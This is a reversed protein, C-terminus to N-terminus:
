PMKIAVLRDLQRDFAEFVTGFSGRGLRRRVEYRKLADPLEVPPPGAATATQPPVAAAGPAPAKHTAIETDPSPPTKSASLSPDHTQPNDPSGEARAQELSTPDSGGRSTDNKKDAM